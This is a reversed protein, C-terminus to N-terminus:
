KLKIIINGFNKEQKIIVIKQKILELLALFTIVIKYKTIEGEFLEEFIIEKRYTIMNLVNEFSEEITIEDREIEHHVIDKELEIGKKLIDKYYNILDKLNLNELAVENENYEIEDKAKYYIKNSLNARSKLDLSANKYKKYEILRNMLEIRPDINEMECQSSNEKKQTPLLMKSKIELLTAAMVLFESTIELDLEKMAEIHSIYQDTIKSIPIDYIDIKEKEILHYLLDLPGEFQELMVKYEM